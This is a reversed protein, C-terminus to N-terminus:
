TKARKGRYRRIQLFTLLAILLTGAMSSLNKLRESISSFRLLQDVDKFGESDRIQKMSELIDEQFNLKDLWFDRNESRELLAITRKTLETITVDTDLMDRVFNRDARPIKENEMILKQLFDIDYAEAADSKFIQKLLIKRDMGREEALDMLFLLWAKGVTYPLMSQDDRNLLAVSAEIRWDVGTSVEQQLHFLEHRIVYGLKAKDGLDKVDLAIFKKEGYSDTRGEATGILDCFYFHNLPLKEVLSTDLGIELANLVGAVETKAKAIQRLVYTSITPNKESLIVVPGDRDCIKGASNLASTDLRASMDPVNVPSCGTRDYLEPIAVSLAAAVWLMLKGVKGACSRGEEPKSTPSNM